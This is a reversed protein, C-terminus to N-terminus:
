KGCAKKLAILQKPTLFGKAWYFNSLSMYFQNDPFKSLLHELMKEIEEGPSTQGMLSDKFFREWTLNKKKLFNNAKRIALLAEHDNDSQTLNLLAIIKTDM